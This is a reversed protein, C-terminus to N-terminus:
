YILPIRAALSADVAADLKQDIQFFRATTRASLQKQFKKIYDGRVDNKQKDIDLAENLIRAGEEESMSNRNAAYDTILKVRRDGIKTMEARYEDYLPWFRAAESNTLLMNAKVIERRDRGVDQRLMQIAPELDAFKENVVPKDAPFAAAPALLACLAAHRIKARISM